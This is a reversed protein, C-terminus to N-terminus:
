GATLPGGLYHQFVPAIHDVVDAAPLSALPEVRVVYRALALGVIQSGVLAARTEPQDDTVAAVLRGVDRTVTERVLAAADPHSSASRIRGLVVSRSRPDELMGVVAEALRRGVTARPGDALGALAEVVAPPLAMVERFLAEKSGHFRVVLAADVGAEGAIGRLTARDYGLEAFQRRAAEASAARTTTPGPRRGSRRASGDSSM